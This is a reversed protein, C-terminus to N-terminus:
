FSERLWNGVRAVYGNSGTMARKRQRRMYELKSVQPYILMGIAASFAPGKGADQLGAVGMPRGLRVNRALMRRALEPLGTLESGGGTLVFRRGTVNLYGSTELRARLTTFIEEVRPRIIRTLTGRTVQYPADKGGTGVPSVQLLDREDTLGILASGYLVKMREADAVSISLNRAIDLTVHHGGIAIADCHVLQGEMFVSVSTTGAGFDVCAVGLQAEDDVLTALGSAYPSATLAEVHLHCRNVALELNKLALADATVVHLDVGLENGVMGIPDRVGPQGDLSFGTPLAHVIAREQSVSQAEVAELVRALDDAEVEYGDLSVGAHFTESGLRGASINVILSQVTVGASREAMDVCDRIAREAEDLDIVVGSKIGRSQVHGFGLVEISHSRARLSKGEARPSLRAIVCCIKNSGVDLVTVLSSRSPNLPRIRPTMADSLNAM